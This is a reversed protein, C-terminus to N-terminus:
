LDGHYVGCAKALAIIRQADEIFPIDVMKGNVTYVGVGQKSQEEYSRVYLEATAIEAPTPAFTEHVYAIQRPNILSKGDFGM